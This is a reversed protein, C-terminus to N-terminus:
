ECTLRKKENEVNWPKNAPMSLLLRITRMQGEIMKELVGAFGTDGIHAAMECNGYEFEVGDEDDFYSILQYDEFAKVAGGNLTCSICIHTTVYRKNKIDYQLNFLPMPMDNSAVHEISYM